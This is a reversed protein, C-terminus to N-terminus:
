PRLERDARRVDACDTGVPGTAVEVREFPGRVVGAGSVRLRLVVQVLDAVQAGYTLREGTAVDVLDGVVIGERPPVEFTMRRCRPAVGRGFRFWGLPVPRGDPRRLRTHEVGALFAGIPEDLAVLRGEWALRAVREAILPDSARHATAEGRLLPILEAATPCRVARGRESVQRRRGAAALLRALAGLTNSPHVMCCIAREGSNYPSPAAESLMTAAFAEERDEPAVGRAFPDLRGYAAATGVSGDGAFRAVTDLLRRPAHAALLRWADPLETTLEVRRLRGGATRVVRWEVYEEQLRRRGEVPRDLLEQARERSLCREPRLPRGPWDIQTTESTRRDAAPLVCPGPGAAAFAAAVRESWAARAQAGLVDLGATDRPPV